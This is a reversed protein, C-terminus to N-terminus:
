QGNREHFMTALLKKVRHIKTAINNPSLGVV